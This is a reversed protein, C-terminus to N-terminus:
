EGDKQSNSDSAPKSPTAEASNSETPQAPSLLQAATSAPSGLGLTETTSPSGGTIGSAGSEASTVSATQTCWFLCYPQVLGWLLARPQSAATEHSTSACGTLALLLVIARITQM